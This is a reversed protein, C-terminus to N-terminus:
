EANESNESAKSNAEAFANKKEASVKPLVAGPNKKADPEDYKNDLYYEIGWWSGATLVICQWVEIDGFVPDRLSVALAPEPALISALGTAVVGTLVSGAVSKVTSKTTSKSQHGTAKAVVARTKKPAAARTSCRALMANTSLMAAM